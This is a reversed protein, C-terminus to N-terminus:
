WFPLRSLATPVFSALRPTKMSFGSTRMLFIARLAPDRMIKTTSAEPDMAKFLIFAALPATTLRNVSAYWLRSLIQRMGNWPSNASTCNGGVFDITIALFRNSCIGHPPPEGNACERCVAQKVPNFACFLPSTPLTTTTSIESPLALTGRQTDIPSSNSGSASGSEFSPLGLRDYKFSSTIAHAFFSPTRGPNLKNHMSVSFLNM